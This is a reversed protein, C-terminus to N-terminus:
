TESRNTWATTHFERYKERNVPIKPLSPNAASQMWRWFRYAKWCLVKEFLWTKKVAAIVKEKGVERHCRATSVAYHSTM